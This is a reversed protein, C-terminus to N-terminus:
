RGHRDVLCYASIEVFEDLQRLCAGEKFPDAREALHFERDCCERARKGKDWTRPQSLASPPRLLKQGRVGRRAAVAARVMSRGPRTSVM